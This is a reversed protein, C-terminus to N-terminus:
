LKIWKGIVPIKKMQANIGIKSALKSGAYGALIMGYTELPDQFNFKREKMDYGTFNRSLINGFELAADAPQAGAQLMPIAGTFGGGGM